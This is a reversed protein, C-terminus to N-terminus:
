RALDLVSQRNEAMSFGLEDLDRYLAAQRDSPLAQLPPRVMAWEDDGYHRACLSKLAPIMTYRELADRVSTIGTQLVDVESEGRQWHEYVQRIGAPNV